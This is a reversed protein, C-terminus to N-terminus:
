LEYLKKKKIMRKWIIIYCLEVVIFCGGILVFGFIMMM